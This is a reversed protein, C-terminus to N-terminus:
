ITGCYASFATDLFMFTQNQRYNKGVKEIAEAAEALSDVWVFGTRFHFKSKKQNFSSRNNM